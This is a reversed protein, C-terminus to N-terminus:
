GAELCRMLEDLLEASEIPRALFRLAGAALARERHMEARGTSTLFVFPTRRLREDARVAALVQYGNGDPLHLDCLILDPPAEALLVLAAALGGATVVSHGFPEVLSRLLEANERVDDVVLVRAKRQPPPAPAAPSSWGDSGTPTSWGRREPPLFGAIAQVFTEPEIPKSLYGDFGAALLRERDAPRAFATVAVFPLRKDGLARRAQEILEYGDLGPLQVDCIVLDPPDDLMRRLGAHGDRAEETQYGFAHLLYRMLELNADNDEIVLLRAAM